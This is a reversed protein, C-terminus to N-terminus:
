KFLEQIKGVVEILKLVFTTISFGLKLLRKVSKRTIKSKRKGKEMSDHLSNRQIRHNKAM